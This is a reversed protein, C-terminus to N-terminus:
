RKEVTRIFLNFLYLSAQFFWQVRSVEKAMKEVWGQIWSEQPLSVLHWLPILPGDKHVWFGKWGSEPFQKKEWTQSIDKDVLLYSKEISMHFVHPFIHGVSVDSVDWPKKLDTGNAVPWHLEMILWWTTFMAEIPHTDSFLTGRFGITKSIMIGILHSNWQSYVRNESLGMTQPYSSWGTSWTRFRHCIDM